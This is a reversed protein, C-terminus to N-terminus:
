KQIAIEKKREAQKLWPIIQEIWIFPKKIVNTIHTLCTKNWVGSFSDIHDFSVLECKHLNKPFIYKWSMQMMM